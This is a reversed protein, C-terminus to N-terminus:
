DEIATRPRREDMKRASELLAKTTEPSVYLFEDIKTLRAEIAALRAEIEALRERLRQVEALLEPHTM